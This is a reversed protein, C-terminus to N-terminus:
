PTTEHALRELVVSLEDPLPAEFDMKSDRLPHTFRLRWAHLFMRKLGLRQLHRNFDRDGYKDDGAVPHGLHAAHVRAQHTRGTLLRIEMLSSSGYRQRPMFVSSAEKGAESVEVMREGSRPRNKELAARVERAGGRWAGAVLALYTKELGGDRLLRHLGTLSPRSKALLLCGSTDRDLRHALELFPADPRLGRLAEILGVGVGSGAHVALGAPKNIVLLDDDEHLIRPLLWSFGEAEGAKLRPPALRLPPIRVVDGAELRYDPRARGKNIRVEGKRLIRYIRSKPVGKLTAILFNDLRQGARTEDIELYRVAPAPDVAKKM